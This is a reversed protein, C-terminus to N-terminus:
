PTIRRRWPKNPAIATTAAYAIGAALANATVAIAGPTGVPLAAFRLRPEFPLGVAAAGSLVTDYESGHPALNSL